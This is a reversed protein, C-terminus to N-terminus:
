REEAKRLLEQWKRLGEQDGSAACELAAKRFVRILTKDADGLVQREWGQMENILERNTMRRYLDDNPHSM